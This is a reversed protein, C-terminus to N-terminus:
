VPKKKNKEIYERIAREAIKTIKGDISQAYEVLIKHIEKSLAVNKSTLNNMVTLFLM